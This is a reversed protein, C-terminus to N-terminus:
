AARGPPGACPRPVATGDGPGRPQRAGWKAAYTVVSPLGPDLRSFDIEAHPLVREGVIALNFERGTVFRQVLM